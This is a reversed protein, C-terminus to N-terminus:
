GARFRERKQQFLDLAIVLLLVTAAAVELLITFNMTPTHASFPALGYHALGDYGLAAYAGITLLGAIPFGFRVLLFGVVGILAEASWTALVKTSTLWEPLNPYDDIFVANHTFHILSAAGYALLLILVPKHTM